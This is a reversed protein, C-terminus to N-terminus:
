IQCRDPCLVRRRSWSALKVVDEPCGFLTEGRGIMLYCQKEMDMRRLIRRGNSSYDV